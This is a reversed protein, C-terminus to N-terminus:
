RTSRPPRWPVDARAVGAAALVDASTGSGNVFEVDMAQFVDAVEPDHDIVVVEHNAALGRALSAGVQGGGVIVVRM